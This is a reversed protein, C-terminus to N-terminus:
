RLARGLLRDATGEALPPAGTDGPAIGEGPRHFDSGGAPILRHRRALEAFARVREPDHDPRHVEIGALGAAALGQVVSELHAAGLRLTAPHALTAAGGERAILEVAARTTIGGHPVFGPGDHGIWRAFADPLDAAHGADVLAAAVHPRGIPGRARAAVDAFDLPAGAEALRAVIRRAREERAARLGELAEVVAAPPDGPFLAVVHASGTDTRTTVEVGTVLRIGADAAAERAEALGAFTDHDTLALCGVGRRAALAVVESPAM